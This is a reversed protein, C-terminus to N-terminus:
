RLLWVVATLMGLVLAAWRYLRCRECGLVTRARKAATMGEVKLPFPGDPLISASDPQLPWPMVTM